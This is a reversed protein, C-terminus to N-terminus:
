KRQIRLRVRDALMEQIVVMLDDSLRCLPSGTDRQGLWLTESAALFLIATCPGGHWKPPSLHYPPAGPMGRREREIRAIEKREFALIEEQEKEMGERHWKWMITLMRGVRSRELLRRLEVFFKGQDAGLKVKNWAKTKLEGTSLKLVPAPYPHPAPSLTLTFSEAMHVTQTNCNTHRVLHLDENWGYVPNDRTMQTLLWVAFWDKDKNWTNACLQKILSVNSEMPFGLANEIVFRLRTRMTTSTKLYSSLCTPEALPTARMANSMADFGHDTALCLVEYSYMTESEAKHARFMYLVHQVVNLSVCGGVRHLVYQDPDRFDVLGWLVFRFFVGVAIKSAREPYGKALDLVNHLCQQLVGQRHQFQPHLRLNKAILTQYEPVVPNLCADLLTNIEGKTKETERKPLAFSGALAGVFEAFTCKADDMPPYFLVSPTALTGILNAQTECRAIPAREWGEMVLM